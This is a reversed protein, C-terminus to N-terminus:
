DVKRKAGATLKEVSPYRRSALVAGIGEMILDHIKRDENFAIERLAQYVPNPIYISSHVIDRRPRRGAPRVTAVPRPGTKTVRKAM